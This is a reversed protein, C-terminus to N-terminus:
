KWNESIILFLMQNKRRSILNFPNRENFLQLFRMCMKAFGERVFFKM